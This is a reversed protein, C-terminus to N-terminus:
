GGALPPYFALVDGSSLKKARHTEAENVTIVAAVNEIGLEIAVADVTAGDEVEIDFVRGSAKPSFKKLSSFLKVKVTM